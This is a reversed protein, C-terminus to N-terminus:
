PSTTRANRPGKGCAGSPTAGVRQTPSDPTLLDPHASELEGLERLLRDYEADPITPDDLVYYRYNADDLQRRLQTIRLSPNSDSKAM